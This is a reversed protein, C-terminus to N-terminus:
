LTCSSRLCQATLTESSQIMEMPVGEFVVEGGNKGGDPGIDIIWDAQKMVDLNHEQRKYVDKCHVGSRSYTNLSSDPATQFRLRRGAEPPLRLCPLIRLLSRDPRCRHPFRRCPSWRRLFPPCGPRFLVELLSPPNCLFPM